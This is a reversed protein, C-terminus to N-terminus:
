GFQLRRKPGYSVVNELNEIARRDGFNHFDARFRVLRDAAVFRSTDEALYFREAGKEIFEDQLTDFAEDGIMRHWDFVDRGIVASAVANHYRELLNWRLLRRPEAAAAIWHAADGMAGENAILFPMRDILHAADILVNMPRLVAREMWKVLRFAAFRFLYHPSHRELNGLAKEDFKEKLFDKVTLATLDEVTEANQSLFGFATDSIEGLADASLGLLPMIPAALTGNDFAGTLKRASALLTPVPTWTTPDFRGEQPKLEEWLAKEGVLHASINLDAHSDLHGRMGLDFDAVKFQNMVVVVGCDSYGRALRAVGEGTTRSGDNDLHLLDFDIVLVDVEDFETRGAPPDLDLEAATKRKLLKSVEAIANDMRKVDADPVVACIKEVCIASLDESDDCVRIKM